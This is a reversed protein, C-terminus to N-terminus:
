AVSVIEAGAFAIRLEIGSMLDGAVKDIVQGDATSLKEGAISRAPEVFDDAAPLGGSYDGPAGSQGQVSDTAAAGEAESGVLANIKSARRRCYSAAEVSVGITLDLEEGIGRRSRSGKRGDRSEGDTAAISQTAWVEGIEIQADGFVEGDEAFFVFQLEASVGEVGEIVRVKTQGIGVYGAGGEALDGVQGTLLGGADHLERQAEIELIVTNTLLRM